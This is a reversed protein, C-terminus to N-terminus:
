VQLLDHLHIIGIPYRSKDVIFLSTIKHKEMHYIAKGALADEQITKPAKTMVDVVKCELLSPTEKLGRRIDGDTVIGILKGSKDTVGTVGMRKESIELLCDNMSQEQLILPIDDGVKMLDKVKYLLRRGLQGAPHLMAFDTEKFDRKKLLVVALADGMALTATTSAMPALGMPCAEEEIRIDLLIDSMKALKSEEKGTLAIIPVDLRKVIPLIQLLESTEGSNSIAIVVDGKAVM